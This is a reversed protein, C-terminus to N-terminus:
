IRTVNGIFRFRRLPRIPTPKHILNGSLQHKVSLISIRYVATKSNLPSAGATLALSPHFPPFSQATDKESSSKASSFNRSSASAM